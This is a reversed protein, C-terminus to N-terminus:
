ITYQGTKDYLYKDIAELIPGTSELPIKVSSSRGTLLGKAKSQSESFNLIENDTMYTTENNLQNESTLSKLWYLKETLNFSEEESVKEWFTFKQTNTTEKNTPESVIFSELGSLDEKTVHPITALQTTTKSLLEKNEKLVEVM